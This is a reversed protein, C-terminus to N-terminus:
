KQLERKYSKKLLVSQDVYVRNAYDLDYRSKDSFIEEMVNGIEINSMVENGLVNNMQTLSQGALGAFILFTILKHFVTTFNDVYLTLM